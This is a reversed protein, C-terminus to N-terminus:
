INMLGRVKIFALYRVRRHMSGGGGGGFPLLQSPLCLLSIVM